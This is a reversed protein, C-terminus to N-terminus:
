RLGKSICDTYGDTAAQKDVATVSSPDSAAKRLLSAFASCLAAEHQTEAAAADAAREAQYASFQQWLWLGGSGIVVICAVAILTALVARM